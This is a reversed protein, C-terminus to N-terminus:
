WPPPRHDDPPIDWGKRRTRPPQRVLVLGVTGLALMLVAAIAGGFLLTRTRLSDIRSALVPQASPSEATTAPGPATVASQDSSPVGPAPTASPASGGQNSAHSTLLPNRSVSPVEETLAGVPDVTGYGYQGDRGAPGKDDATRILRNVVNAASMGPYRSRILAATASVMPAGFSTGQVKWYGHDLGAATLETAPASLVTEPGQLSGTWFTGTRVLGSVAVVGPERAPHWVKAGRDNSLNGDCAVVVVDKSFAYALADTLVKATDASGLSLNIVDAGRDVAWRVAKAITAASDYENRPDLVRIPLIKARHALGVVGNTDNLGAIFAAVATGHGVVDTRGDTSGDVFDTGPLVQGVLDPHTADVGSDIVAVTVDKGTSYRWAAQADLFSLQWQQARVTDAAAPAAPAGVGVLVLVALFSALTTRARRLFPRPGIDRDHVM